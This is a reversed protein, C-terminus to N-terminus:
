LKKGCGGGGVKSGFAANCGWADVPHYCSPEGSPGCFFSAPYGGKATNAKEREFDTLFSKVKLENLKLKKNKM